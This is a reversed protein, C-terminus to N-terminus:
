KAPPDFEVHIHDSEVLVFYDTGLAAQLSTAAKERQAKTMDRTRFDFAEGSFHKSNRVRGPADGGVDTVVFEIGLAEIIERAKHVAVLADAQLISLDEGPKVKIPAKNGPAAVTTSPIPAEAEGGPITAGAEGGPITAEAEGGPITAKAEGGPITAGATGARPIAAEPEGGAPLAAEREAPLAAEPEGAGPIAEEPEGGAPVGFEQGEDAIPAEPETRAPATEPSQSRAGELEDAEAERFIPNDLLSGRDEDLSAALNIAAGQGYAHIQQALRIAAKPNEPVELLAIMLSYPEGGPVLPDGSMAGTIVKTQLLRPWRLFIQRMLKSGAYSAILSEGAGTSGGGSVAQSVMRGGKAGVVRLLLDAGAGTLDEIGGGFIMEGTPGTAQARIINRGLDIFRRIVDIEQKTMWGQTAAMELATPLGPRIPHDILEILKPLSIGQGDSRRAAEAVHEWFAIRFGAAAKAGGGRALDWMETMAKIPTASSLAAGVADAASEVETLRALATGKALTTAVETKALAEVAARAEESKLANELLERVVPLRDLLESKDRLFKHIAKTSVLGTEPDIVEAAALQVFQEQADLMKDINMRTARLVDDSVDFGAEAMNPLFRTAMELEKFRLARMESGTSLADHLLVEPPVLDQGRRGLAQTVGGYARTFTEHFEFSFARASSYADAVAQSVTGSKIGQQYAGDIDGLAAEALLGLRRSLNAEGAKNAIRAQELAESRFKQLGETSLDDAAKKIQGVSLGLEKLTARIARRKAGTLPTGFVAVTQHLDLGAKKLQGAVGQAAQFDAITGEILPDLKARPLMGRKVKRFQRLLRGPTAGASEVGEWMLKEVRRGDKMARSLAEEALISIEARASPTDGTIRKAGALAESRAREIRMKILSGFAKSRARAVEMLAETSGGLRSMEKFMVITTAVTELARRAAAASQNAFPLNIIRLEAELAAAAPDGLAMAVTPKTGDPLRFNRLAIAMAEPDGGAARMYRQMLSGTKSLRAEPSMSKFFRAILRVSDTGLGMIFRTPSAIGFALEAGFRAGAHGPAVEEAIAGGIGASVAAGAETGVFRGTRTAAQEFMSNILNGAFTKLRGAGPNIVIRVGQKAAGVMIGAPGIFMGLNDGFVAASRFQPPVDEIRRVTLPQDGMIDPDALVDVAGEAIFYGAAGGAITGVIAGVVRAGPIPVAATAAVGTKFGAVAGSIVGTGRIAGSVASRAITEGASEPAGPPLGEGGPGAQGGPTSSLVDDPVDPAEAEPATTELADPSEPPGAPSGPPTHSLIDDAM